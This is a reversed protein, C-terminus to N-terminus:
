ILYLNKDVLLYKAKDWPGRVMSTSSPSIEPISGYKMGLRVSFGSHISRHCSTCIKMVGELKIIYEGPDAGKLLYLGYIEHREGVGVLERGCGQCYRVNKLSETYSNFWNYGLLQRPSHGHLVKPLEERYVPSNPKNKSKSILVLENLESDTLVRSPILM